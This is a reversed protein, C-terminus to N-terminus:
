PQRVITIVESFESLNGSKDVAQVKYLVEGKAPAGKDVFTNTTILEATILEWGGGPTQRLVRYGALDPEAGPSFRLYNGDPQGVGALDVPAAPPTSDQPKAEAWASPLGPALSQGFTRAAYIRYKYPAGNVVTRDVLTPKTLPQLNLTRVGDPGSREVLYGSIDTAAAGGDLVSVERWTLTVRGDGAEASLGTPAAAPSLRPARALNSIPSERGSADELVVQYVGEMNLPATADLYLFRGGQMQQNPKDGKAALELTRYKKLLPPCPPCEPDGTLPLYGYFLYAREVAHGPADAEPVSFAVKIGDPAPVAILDTVQVPALEVSSRPPTKVGCGAAVLALTLTITLSAVRTLWGAM